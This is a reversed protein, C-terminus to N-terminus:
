KVWGKEKDLKIAHALCEDLNTCDMYESKCQPCVDAVIGRPVPFGDSPQFYRIGKMEYAFRAECKHCKFESKM